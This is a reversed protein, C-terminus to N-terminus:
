RKEATLDSIKKTLEQIRKSEDDLKKRKEQVAPVEEVKKKLERQTLALQQQLERYRTRLADIEPTAYKLNGWAEELEQGLRHAAVMKEAREAMWQNYQKLGAEDLKSFDQAAAWQCVVGLYFGLIVLLGHKRM